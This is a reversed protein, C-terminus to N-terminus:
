TADSSFTLKYKTDSVFNYVISYLSPKKKRNNNNNNTNPNIKHFNNTKLHKHVCLITGVHKSLFCKLIIYENLFCLSDFMYM